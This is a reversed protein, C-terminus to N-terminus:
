LSLISGLKKFENMKKELFKNKLKLLQYIRVMFSLIENKEYMNEVQHNKVNQILYTRNLPMAM